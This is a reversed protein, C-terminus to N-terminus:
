FDFADMMDFQVSETTPKDKEEKRLQAAGVNYVRHLLALYANYRQKCVDMIAGNAYQMVERSYILVRIAISFGNTSATKNDKHFENKDKKIQNIAENISKRSANYEKKITRATEDYLVIDIINKVDGLKTDAEVQKGRLKEKIKGKLTSVDGVSGEIKFVGAMKELIQAKEEVASRDDYKAAFAGTFMARDVAQSYAGIVDNSDLADVGEFSYVKGLKTDSRGAAAVIEPSIKGTFKALKEIRKSNSAQAIQDGVRTFFEKAKATQKKFWAAVKSFFEKIKAGLSQLVAVAKDKIEAFGETLVVEGSEDVSTVSEMMEQLEWETAEVVYMAEEMSTLCGEPIASTSAPVNALYDVTNGM